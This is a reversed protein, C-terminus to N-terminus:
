QAVAAGYDTSIILVSGVNILVPGVSASVPGIYIVTEGM